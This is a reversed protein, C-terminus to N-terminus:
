VDEVASLECPIRKAQTGAAKKASAVDKLGNGTIMLAVRDTSRLKDTAALKAFGAFTAAGAPEAFVGAKRALTKVADLIDADSVVVFDGGAKKLYQIAKVGDRPTGVEISDAVTHADSQDELVVRELASAAFAGALPASGAAQVGIVQPLREILGLKQLEFFGKVVGSIVSGDGVSVLVVDPVDWDLQEALEWAGTKKGEVLYPNMGASRNYWGFRETAQVCLDFAEDYSGEVAYVKAGYILLQTLKAEPASAPVFIVSNLPTAAAYGAMSSAANGTSACTITQVGKELAKLVVVASARDKYSATPNKGDDKVYLQGVGYAKALAEFAYVPTWGVQLPQIHAGSLPLIPLYRWMSPTNDRALTQRTLKARVEDLDYRVELNGLRPGCDPCLYAVREHPYTKHCSICRLEITLPTSM